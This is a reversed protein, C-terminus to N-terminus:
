TIPLSNTLTNQSRMSTQNSLTQSEVGEVFYFSFLEIPSAILNDADKKQQQYYRNSIHM